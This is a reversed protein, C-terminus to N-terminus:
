KAWRIITTVPWEGMPTLSVTPHHPIQVSHRRYTPEINEMVLAGLCIGVHGVFEGDRNEATDWRFLLDGPKAEATSIYRNGPGYREGDLAWGQGDRLGREMDRAWWPRPKANVRISYGYFDDYSIGLAHQVVVRVFALCMGTETPVGKVEGRM